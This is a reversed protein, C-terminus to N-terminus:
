KKAKLISWLQRSVLSQIQGRGEQDLEDFEVGVGKPLEADGNHLRVVTGWVGLTVPQDPIDFELMLRSRLPPPPELCLFVGGWSIDGVQVAETANSNERKIMIKIPLPVRLQKRVKIM